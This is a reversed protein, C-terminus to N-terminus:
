SRQITAHWWHSCGGLCTTTRRREDAVTFLALLLRFSKEQESEPLNLVKAVQVKLPGNKLLTSPTFTPKLASRIIAVDVDGEVAGAQAAFMWLSRLASLREDASLRGFWRRGEDEPAIGQALRNLFVEADSPM